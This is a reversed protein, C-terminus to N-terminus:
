AYWSPQLEVLSFPDKSYLSVKLKKLKEFEELLTEDLFSLSLLSNVLSSYSFSGVEHLAWKLIRFIELNELKIFM